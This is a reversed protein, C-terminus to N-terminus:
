SRWSKNQLEVESGGGAVWFNEFASVWGDVIETQFRLRDLEAAMAKPVGKTLSLGSKGNQVLIHLQRLSPILPSIAFSSTENLHRLNTGIVAEAAGTEVHPDESLAELAELDEPTDAYREPHGTYPGPLGEELGESYARTLAGAAGIASGM